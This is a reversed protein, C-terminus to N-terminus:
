GKLGSSSLLGQIYYKQGVLFILIVPIIYIVIGSLLV